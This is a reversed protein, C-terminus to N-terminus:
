FDFSVGVTPGHLLMDYVFRDAGSGTDYDIYNLRYGVLARWRDSLKFGFVPWVQVDYTSSVGFGGFDAAFGFDVTRSLQQHMRFGIVPDVWTKDRNSEIQSPGSDTFSSGISIVRAAVYVTAAESVRYGAAATYIGQDINVKLRQNESRQGVKAYLADGNFMWKDNQANFNVMAGWDLHSLLESFPVDVQATSGGIGVQGSMSAAMFYPAIRFEWGGDAAFGPAAATLMLAAASLEIATRRARM